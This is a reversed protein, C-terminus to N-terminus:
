PADVAQRGGRGSGHEHRPDEGISFIWAGYAARPTLAMAPNLRRGWSITAQTVGILAAAALLLNLVIAPLLEVRQGFRGVVILVPVAVLVFSVRCLKRCPWALRARETWQNGQYKRWPRLAVLMGLWTAVKAVVYVSALAAVLGAWALPSTRVFAPVIDTLEVEV